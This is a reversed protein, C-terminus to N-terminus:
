TSEALRLGKYFYTQPGGERRRVREYAPNVARLKTGFATASGPEHGHRECWREWAERLDDAKVAYDPESECCDELFARIPSSLRTFDDLIAVGARPTRLRGERRLDFYDHDTPYVGLRVGGIALLHDRLKDYEAPLDGAHIDATTPSM